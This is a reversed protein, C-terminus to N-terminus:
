IIFCYVNSYLILMMISLVPLIVGMSNSKAENKVHREIIRPRKTTPMKSMEPLPEDQKEDDIQVSTLEIDGATSIPINASSEPIDTNIFYDDTSSLPQETWIEGGSSIEPNMEQPIEIQVGDECQNVYAERSLAHFFTGNLCSSHPLLYRLMNHHQVILWDLHCDCIVPDLRVRSIVRVDCTITNFIIKRKQMM